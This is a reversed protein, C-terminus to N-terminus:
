AMNLEAGLGVAEAEEEETWINITPVVELKGLRGVPSIKGGQSIVERALSWILCLFSSGLTKLICQLM